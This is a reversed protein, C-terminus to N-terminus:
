LLFFYQLPNGIYLTCLFGFLFSPVFPIGEKILVKKIKGQRKLRILAQIQAEEIGLDKPGVMVRGNVRIEKPIWDGVTLKEPSRYQYMCSKEVAKIFIWLYFGFLYLLIMSLIFIRLWPQATFLALIFLVAAFSLAIKRFTRIGPLRLIQLFEKKFKEWNRLMLFLSWLVGYISGLVLTNIVFGILFHDMSLRLGIVAGMGMLLKADGGGVQGSYFLAYALILMALFGVMGELLFSWNWAIISFLLRIGIGGFIIGFNLWDPVERTKIDTYSGLLLAVFAVGSLITTYVM